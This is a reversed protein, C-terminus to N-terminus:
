PEIMILPVAIWQEFSTKASFVRAFIKVPIEIPGIVTDALERFTSIGSYFYDDTAILAFKANGSDVAFYSEEALKEKDSSSKKVSDTASFSISSTSRTLVVKNITLVGSIWCYVSAKGFEHSTDDFTPYKNLNFELKDLMGLTSIEYTKSESSSAGGSLIPIKATAQIGETKTIKTEPNNGTEVEYLGSIFDRDLYLLKTLFSM